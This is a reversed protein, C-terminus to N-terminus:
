EVIVKMSYPVHKVCKDPPDNRKQVLLVIEGLLSNDNQRVGTVNDSWLIVNTQNDKSLIYNDNLNKKECIKQFEFKSNESDSVMNLSKLKSKDQPILEDLYELVILNEHGM